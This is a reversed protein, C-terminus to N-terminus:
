SEILAEQSAKRDTIDRTVKVFGIHRGTADQMRHIVASAWFTTGDKRLRWGETEHRGSDLASQLIRSPLHQERDEPTFFKTYHQGIIEEPAYGKLRTAGVNWTVVFGDQDLMYIASDTVADVLLRFRQANSQRNVTEAPGSAM